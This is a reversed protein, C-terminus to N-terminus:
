LYTLRRLAWQRYFDWARCNQQVWGLNIKWDAPSPGDTRLNRNYRTKANSLGLLEKTKVNASCM